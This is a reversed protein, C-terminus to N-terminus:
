IVINYFLELEYRYKNEIFSYIDNFIDKADNEWPKVYFSHLMIDNTTTAIINRSWRTFNLNVIKILDISSNNNLHEYFVEDIIETRRIISKEHKTM